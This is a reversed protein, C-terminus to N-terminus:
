NNTKQPPAAPATHSSEQHITRSPLVIAFIFPDQKLIYFWRELYLSEWPGAEIFFVM